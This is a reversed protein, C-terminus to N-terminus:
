SDHIFGLPARLGGAIVAKQERGQSCESLSTHSAGRGACDPRIGPPGRHLSAQNM